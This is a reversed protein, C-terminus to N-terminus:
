TKMDLASPVCFVSRKLYKGGPTSVVGVIAKSSSCVMLYRDPPHGEYEATFVFPFRQGDFVVDTDDVIRKVAGIPITSRKGAPDLPGRGPLTRIQASLRQYGQLKLGGVYM